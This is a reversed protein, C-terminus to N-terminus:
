SFNKEFIATKFNGYFLIDFLKSRGNGEDGKM